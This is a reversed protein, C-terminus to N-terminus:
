KTGIGINVPNTLRAVYGGAARDRVLRELSERVVDREAGSLDLMGGLVREVIPNSCILWEWLDDGSRYETVETVTEVQVDSLGAAVLEARLRDPDALQFELPPPDVPPGDFEPRVSRVAAVLFGLFEIEHPNGYAHIFVRGGSRTVRAMERIGRSVDPFLMVGFQSGVVDFSNDDFQLAHGDMPWARVCLDEARARASLLELMVPSLDVATVRAGLRAAPIALAGSGAAVDLFRMGSRVEARRLGEMAISMQSPTNTRDYGAAIHDWEESADMPRDLTPGSCEVDKRTYVTQQIGESREDPADLEQARSAGTDNTPAQIGTM